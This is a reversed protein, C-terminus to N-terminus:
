PTEDIYNNARKMRPYKANSAAKLKARRKLKAQYNHQAIIRSGLISKVTNLSLDADATVSDKM